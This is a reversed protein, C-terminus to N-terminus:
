NSIGQSSSFRMTQRNLCHGLPIGRQKKKSYCSHDPFGSLKKKAKFATLLNVLNNEPFSLQGNPLTLPGSRCNCWGQERSPPMAQPFHHPRHHPSMLTRTRMVARGSAFQLVSCFHEPGRDM